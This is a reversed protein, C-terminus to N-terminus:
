IQEHDVKMVVLSVDDRFGHHGSFLRVQEVIQEIMTQPSLGSYEELLGELRAEGFLQHHENEAEILGDTYSTVQVFYLIM